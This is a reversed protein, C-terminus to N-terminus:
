SLALVTPSESQQVEFDEQDGQVPNISPKKRFLDPRGQPM